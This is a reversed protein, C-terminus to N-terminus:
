IKMGEKSYRMHSTAGSDIIFIDNSLNYTSRVQQNDKGEKHLMLMNINGDLAIMMMDASETNKQEDRQKKFCRDVTHGNMQCYNCKMSTGKNIYPSSDSSGNPNRNNGGRGKNNDSELCDAAKHGKKGCIRPREQWL